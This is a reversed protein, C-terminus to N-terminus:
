WGSAAGVVYNEFSVYGDVVKRVIEHDRSTGLRGESGGRLPWWPPLSSLRASGVPRCGLDPIPAEDHPGGAPHAQRRQSWMSESVRGCCLHQPSARREGLNPLQQAM